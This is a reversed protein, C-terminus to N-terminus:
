YVMIKAKSILFGHEEDETECSLGTKESVCTFGELALSNGYGLAEDDGCCGQEGPDDIRQAEDAPGLIVTVYDPEVRECTLEPGGDIPEYIDTGGRPTYLCGINGSPTVFAIQGHDDPEIEQEEAFAFGVLMMASAAVALVVRPM